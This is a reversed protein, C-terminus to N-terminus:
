EDYWVCLTAGTEAYNVEYRTGLDSITAVHDGDSDKVSLIRYGARQSLYEDERVTDGATMVALLNNATDKTRVHVHETKIVSQNICYM